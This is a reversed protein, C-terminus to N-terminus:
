AGRSGERLYALSPPLTEFGDEGLRHEFLAQLDALPREDGRFRVQTSDAHGAALLIVDMLLRADVSQEGMRMEVPLGHHQVVRVILGAPRLHLKRGVPLDLAIERVRSYRALVSRATGRAERVCQITSTVLFTVAWRLLDATGLIPEARTRLRASRLDHALRAHIQLLYAVAELLHLLISVFGRFTKLEADEAEVPTAAVTTDYTSQIGHMRARAEQAASAPFADRVFADLAALHGPPPLSLRELEEGLALFKTALDAIREPHGEAEGADLDQPLRWRVDEGQLVAAEMADAPVELGLPGEAEVLSSELLAGLRGALWGICEDLDHRFGDLDRREGLYRRIRGRLHLLAHLAKAAWRTATVIEAFLAFARNGRAGVELLSYEVREAEAVARLCFRRTLDGEVGARLRRELRLFDRAERSLRRRYEAEPLVRDLAAAAAMEVGFRPGTGRPADSPGPSSTVRPDTM